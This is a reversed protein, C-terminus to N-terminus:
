GDVLSRDKLPAHWTSGIDTTIKELYPIIPVGEQRATTKPDGTRDDVARREVHWKGGYRDKWDLGQLESVTLGAFGATAIAAKARLGDVM